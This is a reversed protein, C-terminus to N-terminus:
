FSYLIELDEIYVPARLVEANNPESVRPTTAKPIGAEKDKVKVGPM